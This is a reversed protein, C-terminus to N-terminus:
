MGHKSRVTGQSFVDLPLTVRWRFIIRKNGQDQSGDREHWKEMLRYDNKRRESISKGSRLPVTRDHLRPIDSSWDAQERESRVPPRDTLDFKQIKATRLGPVSFFDGTVSSTWPPCIKAEQQIIPATGHLENPEAELDMSSNLQKREPGAPSSGYSTVQFTTGFAQVAPLVDEQLKNKAVVTIGVAPFIKEEICIADTM